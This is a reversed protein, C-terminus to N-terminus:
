LLVMKPDNRSSFSFNFNKLPGSGICLPLLNEDPIVHECQFKIIREKSTPFLQQILTSIPEMTGGALIIAKSQDIIEQFYVNPNLL